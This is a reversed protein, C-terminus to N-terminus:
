NIITLEDPDTCWYAAGEELIVDGEELEGKDWGFGDPEVIVTNIDPGYGYTVIKSDIPDLGYTIISM